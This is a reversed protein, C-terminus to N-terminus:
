FEGKGETKTLLFLGMKKESNKRASDMKQKNIKERKLGKFVKLLLFQFPIWSCIAETTCLVIFSNLRTPMSPMFYKNGIWNLRQFNCLLEPPPCDEEYGGGRGSSFLTLTRVSFFSFSWLNVDISSSCQDVGKEWNPFTILYIDEAFIQVCVKRDLNWM